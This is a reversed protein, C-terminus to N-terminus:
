RGARENWFNIDGAGNLITAIGDSSGSQVMWCGPLHVVEFIYPWKQKAESGCFPCGEVVVKKEDM